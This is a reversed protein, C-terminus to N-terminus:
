QLWESSIWAGTWSRWIGLQWWNTCPIATWCHTNQFRRMCRQTLIIHYMQVSWPSPYTDFSTGTTMRPSVIAKGDSFQLSTVILTQSNDFCFGPTTYNCLQCSLRPARCTYRPASHVALTLVALASLVGPLVSRLISLALLLGTLVVFWQLTTQFFFFRREFWQWHAQVDYSSSITWCIKLSMYGPQIRM